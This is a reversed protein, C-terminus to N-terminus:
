ATRGAACHRHCIHDHWALILEKNRQSTKLGKFRELEREYNKDRGSYIELVPRM